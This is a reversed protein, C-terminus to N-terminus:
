AYRDLRRMVEDVIKKRKEVERKEMRNIWWKPAFISYRKKSYNVIPGIIEELAEEGIGAKAANLAIYAIIREKRGELVFSKLIDEAREIFEDKALEELESKVEKPIGEIDKRQSPIQSAVYASFGLALILSSIRILFEVLPPIGPITIFYIGLLLGILSIGVANQRFVEGGLINFAELTALSYGVLTFTAGLKLMPSLQPLFASLYYLVLAIGAGRVLFAIREPLKPSIFSLIAGLALLSVETRPLPLPSFYFFFPVGLSSILAKVHKKGTILM